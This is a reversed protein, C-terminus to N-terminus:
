NNCHLPLRVGLSTLSCRQIELNTLNPLSALDWNRGTMRPCASVKLLELSKPLQDITANELQTLDNCELRKLNSLRQLGWGKGTLSQSNAFRVSELSPLQEAIRAVLRDNIYRCNGLDLQQLNKLGTFDWGAGTIAEPDTEYGRGGYISTLKLSQLNVLRHLMTAVSTNSVSCGHIHLAELSLPLTGLQDVVCGDIALEKLKTLPSFDFGRKEVSSASLMSLSELNVLSEVGQLKNGRGRVSLDQLESLPTLDLEGGDPDRYSHFRLSKLHPTYELITSVSDAKTNECRIFALEEIQSLKDLPWGICRMGQCDWLELSKLAPLETLVQQILADSTPSAISFRRLKTLRDFPWGEGDFISGTGGADDALHLEELAPMMALLRAVSDNEVGHCHSISLSRLGLQLSMWEAGGINSENTRLRCSSLRLVRLQPLNSLLQGLDEASFTSNLISIAALGSCSSSLTRLVESQTRSADIRNIEIHTIGRRNIEAACQDANELTLWSLAFYKDGTETLLSTPKVERQKPADTDTARNAGPSEAADRTQCASIFLCAFLSSMVLARNM